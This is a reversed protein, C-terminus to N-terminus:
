GRATARRRRCLGAGLMGAGLLAAFTSPEPIAAVNLFISSGSQFLTLGSYAELGTGISLGSDILSGSFSAGSFAGGLTLGSYDTDADGSFLLYDGAALSGTTLDTFNIVTAAFGAETVAANGVFAITDSSLGAGLDFAFSAGSNMWLNTRASASQDITLTGVGGDGPAIIGGSKVDIMVGGGTDFAPTLTGVGGLVGGSNVVYAGGNAGAVHTGNVLLTGGNVTTTGVHTNAGSLKQTSDGNKTITGADTAANGSISGAFDFTQGSTSNAGFTYGSTGAIRLSTGSEGSLGVISQSRGSTAGPNVTAGNALHVSSGASGPLKNAAQPAFTGGDLTLVGTLGSWGSGSGLRTTTAGVNTIHLGQSGSVTLNLNLAVFGPSNITITPTGSGTAFAVSGSLTLLNNSPTTDQFNLAGLTGSVNSITGGSSYNNVLTATAGSGDAIIGDVWNATLSWDLNGGTYTSVLAGDAAHLSSVLPLTGASIAALAILRRAAMRPPLSVHKM